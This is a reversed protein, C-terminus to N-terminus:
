RNKWYNRCIESLKYIDIQQEIPLDVWIKTSFHFSVQVRQYSLPFKATKWLKKIKISNKSYINAFIQLIKSIHMVM